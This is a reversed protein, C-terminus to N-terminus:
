SWVFPPCVGKCCKMMSVTILLGPKPQQKESSFCPVSRCVCTRVCVCVCVCVCAHVCVCARACVCVYRCAHVCVSVCNLLCGAVQWLLTVLGATDLVNLLLLCFLRSPVTWLAVHPSSACCEGQPVQSLSFCVAAGIGEQGCCVSVAAYWVVQLWGFAMVASCWLSFQKMSDHYLVVTLATKFIGAPLSFM